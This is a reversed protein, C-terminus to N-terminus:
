LKVEVGYDFVITLVGDSVTIEATSDSLQNSVGLAVSPSLTASNLPYKMGLLTVGHAEGGWAFVSVRSGVEGFLRLSDSAIAVAAETRGVLICRVSIKSM